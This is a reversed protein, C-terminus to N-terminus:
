EVKKILRPIYEDVPIIEKYNHLLKTATTPGIVYGTLNYPYSPKEIRSDISTVKNPEYFLKNRIEFLYCIICYLM